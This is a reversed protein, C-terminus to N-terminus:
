CGYAAVASTLGRLPFSVATARRLRNPDDLSYLYVSAPLGWNGVFNAAVRLGAQRVGITDLYTLIDDEESYVPLVHTFIVWLRGQGRFADIESLYRHGDGRHCGGRVMFQNDLGFTPAYFSVALDAGYYV